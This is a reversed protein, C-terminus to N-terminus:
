KAKERFILYKFGEMKGGWKSYRSQQIGLRCLRSGLLGVDHVCPMLNIRHQSCAAFLKGLLNEELERITQSGIIESFLLIHWNMVPSKEYESFKYISALSRERRSFPPLLILYSFLCIILVFTWYCKPLFIVKWPLIVLKIGYAFKGLFVIEVSCFLSIYCLFQIM